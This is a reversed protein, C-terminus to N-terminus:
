KSKAQEFKLLEDRIIDTLIIMLKIIKKLM